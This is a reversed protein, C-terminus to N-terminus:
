NSMHIYLNNSDIWRDIQTRASSADSREARKRPGNRRRRNSLLENRVSMRNVLVEQTKMTQLPTCFGAYIEIEMLFIITRVEAPM